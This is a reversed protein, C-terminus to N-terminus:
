EPSRPCPPFQGLLEGSRAYHRLLLASAGVPESQSRELLSGVVWISHDPAFCLQSPIYPSTVIERMLSGDPSFIAITGQRICFPQRGRMLDGNVDIDVNDISSNAQRSVKM